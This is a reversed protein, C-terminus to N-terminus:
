FNKRKELVFGNDNSIHGISPCILVHLVCFITFLLWYITIPKSNISKDM